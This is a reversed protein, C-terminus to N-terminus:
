WRLFLQWVVVFDDLIRNGEVIDFGFYFAFLVWGESLELLVDFVAESIGLLIVHSITGYPLIGFDQMHTEGSWLTMDVISQCENLFQGKFLDLLESTAFFLFKVIVAFYLLLLFCRIHM